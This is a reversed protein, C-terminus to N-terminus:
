DYEIRITFNTLRLTAWEWVKPYTEACYEAMNEKTKFYLPGFPAYDKYWGGNEIIERIVYTMVQMEEKTNM